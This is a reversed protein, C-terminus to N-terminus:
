IFKTPKWNRVELVNGKGIINSVQYLNFNLESQLGGLTTIQEVATFTYSAEYGTVEKSLVVNAGALIEIVSRDSDSHIIDVNDRWQGNTRTRLKWEITLDFTSTDLLVEPNSPSYPKISEGTIALSTEDIIQDLSQSSHVAKFLLTKSLDEVNGPVRILRAGTGKLLVFKEGITHQNVYRETGRLGRFLNTLKYTSTTILEANQWAIIENGFLGMNKLSYFDAETISELTGGNPIKVIIESGYDIINPNNPRPIQTVTGVTSEGTFSTLKSYSNGGNNSVYIAGSKWTGPSTVGVYLGIETDSDQILPIDLAIASGTAIEPIAINVFTLTSLQFDPEVKDYKVGTIEVLDNDGIEKKEVQFLHDVNDIPISFLGGLEMEKGSSPLLPIKEIRRSQSWFIGLTKWAINHAEQDTLNQRTRINIDNQHQADHRFAPQFGLDYNRDSSIYEFQLESPLDLVDPLKAMYRDIVSNSDETSAINDLNLKVISLSEPTYFDRFIIKSGTDITFFFHTKQLEKIFDGVTGGDQKLEINVETFQNLVPDIEIQEDTLGAAKCVWDLVEPLSQEESEVEIDITPYANGPNIELRKFVLYFRNKYGTVNGVGEHAEITPSPTQTKTGYYIELDEFYKRDRAKKVSSALNGDYEYVLESSVWIKTIQKIKGWGGLVAFTAYSTQASGGSAGKGQEEEEDQIPLGWFVNRNRLRVKKGFPKELPFGYSSKLVAKTEDQTSEEATLANIALSLAISVATAVAFQVM